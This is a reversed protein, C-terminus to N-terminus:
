DHNSVEEVSTNAWDSVLIVTINDIGGAENAASILTSGLQELNLTKDAFYDKLQNFSVMNTLGDSCMMLVEESQLMKHDIEYSVTKTGGISQTVVNRIPHHEGEEETIEGSKILENVLSHDETMQILDGQRYIYARSDGVHGILIQDDVCIALVLTTSMGELKPDSKSTDYIYLNVEEIVNSFWLKASKLDLKTDLINFEEGIFKTTLKSAIDGAQNGGVGDCLVFLVQNNSNIFYDAYDQNSSRRLGINSKVSVQM